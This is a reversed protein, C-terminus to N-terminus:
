WYAIWRDGVRVAHGQLTIRHDSPQISPTTGIRHLPLGRLLCAKGPEYPVEHCPFHGEAEAVGAITGDAAMRAFEAYDVPWHELSTGAAPVEIPVTVSLADLVPGDFRGWIYQIDFHADGTPEGPRLGTADFIHFGPLPLGDGWAVESRLERSLFAKLDALAPGFAEALRANSEEVDLPAGGAAHGDKYLALGLTFFGPSREIWHERLRFVGDRVERIRAASLAPEAPVDVSFGGAGSAPRGLEISQADAMRV